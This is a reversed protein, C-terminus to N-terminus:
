DKCSQKSGSKNPGSKLYVILQKACSECADAQYESVLIVRVGSNGKDLAIGCLDCYMITM